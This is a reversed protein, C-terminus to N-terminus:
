GPIAELLRRKLGANILFVVLGGLSQKAVSAMANARTTSGGHLKLGSSANPRALPSCRRYRTWGGHQPSIGEFREPDVEGLQVETMIRKAV